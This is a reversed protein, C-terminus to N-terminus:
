KKQVPAEDVSAGGMDRAILGLLTEALEAGFVVSTLDLIRVGALPGTAAPELAKTNKM